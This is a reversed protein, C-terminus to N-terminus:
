FSAGKNMKLTATSRQTSGCAVKVINHRIENDIVSEVTIVFKLTFLLRMSFKRWNTKKRYCITLEWENDCRM